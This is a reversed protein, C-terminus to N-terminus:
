REDSKGRLFVELQAEVRTIRRETSMVHAAMPILLLNLWQLLEPHM